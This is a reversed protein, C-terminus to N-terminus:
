SFKLNKKSELRKKIEEPSLHKSGDIMFNLTKHLLNNSTIELGAHNKIQNDELSKDSSLNDEVQNDDL